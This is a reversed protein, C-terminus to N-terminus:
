VTAPATASARNQSAPVPNSFELAPDGVRSWKLALIDRLYNQNVRWPARSGQKPWTAVARQVYGSSFKEVFPAAPAEQGPRPTVQRVGKKDMFNLLRCVYNCILDAKLTWSANIYGFVSALNPVGSLMVGKYALTNGLDVARGDVMLDAGGFAQLVLGTATVVIDAELEEGSQLRLGKETYRDITRTVVSARGGRIAQFLDGDPVLCLRQEWPNYRPTFHTNVDYGSGLQQRIKNILGSKVFNPFHQALQYLYIMFGINKWRSLRYASTAPLVRRLWNAIVDQEPLSLIYTPSRQLMTVHAATKAIAPLLTVATAGSGIIIVRKGAYELTEPWAQPHIVQGRFRAVDQFEPLYGSRYRYYGACCFLFNCTLTVREEGSDPATRVATVTWAADQSSWAAREIRHRFRIHRDIGADRATDTIYNRIDDGPAISKSSTWPRFSFGMTFMDSDSRIGPYRFLDWTGGIRERQELIAYTKRPCYKQLHYAADIGSLGAGIILVDFHEAPM